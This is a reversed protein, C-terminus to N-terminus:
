SLSGFREWRVALAPGRPPLRLRRLWCYGVVSRRVAPHITRRQQRHPVDRGACRCLLRRVPHSAARNPRPDFMHEPDPPVFFGAERPQFANEIDFVRVGANDRFHLQFEPLRGAPKTVIVPRPDFPPIPQDPRMGSRCRRVMACSGRSQLDAPDIPLDPPTSPQFHQPDRRAHEPFTPRIQGIQLAAVQARTTTGGSSFERGTQGQSVVRGPM